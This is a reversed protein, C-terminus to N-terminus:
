EEGIANEFRYHGTIKYDFLMDELQPGSGINHVVMLRNTVSHREDVVIGIHPLNGPLMWSVIDGPLFDNDAYDSAKRRLALSNAYRKFFVQLNPVRRHDINSDPKSLGWIRESPYANFNKKMDEHVLAQLDLDVTRLSRIVLDTCVGIEKPVDGNPYPISIYRGDYRVSHTLREKAAHVLTLPELTLQEARVPLLLSLLICFFASFKICPKFLMKM